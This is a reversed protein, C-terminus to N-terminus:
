QSKLRAQETGSVARVRPQALTGTVTYGGGPGAPVPTMKFDIEREFTAIGSVEYNGEPSDLKGDSIELTGGHLQALATFKRIKLIEDSDQFLMHPFSGDTVKVQLTGELSKWSDLTCSGRVDYSAAATGEVWHDKMLRSANALSMGTLNGSGSCLPPEVSFDAHWKGRHTGGLLAANVSSLELKGAKLSIDASLKSASAGRIVLRDATLHGFAWVRALTSAPQTGLVRYWPRNKPNAWASADDLSFEDANLRFRLPCNEPTGCGRPMELSGKWVAGAARANLKGLHVEDQSIEIEASSIEVPEGTGRLGFHVNRLKASGTLQPGAFGAIGNEAAWPGGIRLDLQASGDATTRLAHLGFMRATRLTRAVDADGVMNVGYGWRDAWGRVTAAGMRGRELAFPGFEMHAGRYPRIKGRDRAAGQWATTVVIPITVPGLEVKESESSARLGVIEGHGAVRSVGGSSTKAALSLQGELKGELMLDEPIDQKARKALAGLASAPVNEAAVDFAYPHDGSLRAEGTITISGAGVPAICLIQPFEHEPANYEADCRAALGFSKQTPIDYRRFDGALVTSSIKLAAPTGTVTADIRLDGRWGKDNGFFFKTVQGLQARSWEISFELPTDSVNASRQWSGSVQLLGTDNLNMDSRFPQAKLRVGWANESQQWLAFDANTLADPIKEPGNKFNIRGSSGEIYPFGPRPESKTKATPAMPTRASRELLSELNWAGSAQHVLNLSPETLDLKAVELRGRLLSSLRLDATVASARLMPESGFSPDDYVVLNELDFGPRPLLRIHASSLDVPRGVAASLSTIIRSKLRSAGPRFLFLVLLVLVALAAVRRKSAFIKVAKDRLDLANLPRKAIDAEM